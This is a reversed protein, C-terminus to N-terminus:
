THRFHNNRLYLHLVYLEAVTTIPPFWCSASTMVVLDGQVETVFPLTFLANTASIRRYVALVGNEYYLM